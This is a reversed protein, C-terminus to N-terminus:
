PSTSRIPSFPLIKDALYLAHAYHAGPTIPTNGGLFVCHSATEGGLGAPQEGFCYVNEQEGQRKGGASKTYPHRVRGTAKLQALVATLQDSYTTTLQEIAQFFHHPEGIDYWPGDYIFGAIKENQDLYDRYQDVVQYPKTDPMTKVFRNSLIHIGTFLHESTQHATHVAGHAGQTGQRPPEGGIALIGNDNRYIVTKGAIPKPLLVMTAAAQERRHHDIVAQMNVDSYIDSNYVILDDDGLWDKLSAITGGTGLLEDELFLQYSHDKIKHRHFQEFYSIMREKLHYSNVTLASSVPELKMLAFEIITSTFFPLLPKPTVETLPAMRSGYGAALVLGKFGQGHSNKSHTPISGSM